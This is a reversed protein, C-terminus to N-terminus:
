RNLRVFRSPHHSVILNCGLSIAEDMVNETVDIALLAGTVVIQTAWRYAAM